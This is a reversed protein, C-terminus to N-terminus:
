FNLLPNATIPPVLSKSIDGVTKIKCGRGNQWSQVRKRQSANQVQLYKEESIKYM